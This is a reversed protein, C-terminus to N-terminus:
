YYTITLKPQNGTGDKGYLYGYDIWNTPPGPGPGFCIGKSVGTRFEDAITSGLSLTYTGGIYCQTLSARQTTANSFTSPVSTNTHTGVFVKMWDYYAHKIKFTLVADVITKGALDASMAAWDFIAISKQNGYNSDYQGQYLNDGINPPRETGGGVYTRCATATYTTSEEIIPSSDSFTGQLVVGEYKLSMWMAGLTAVDPSIPSGGTAHLTGLFIELYDGADLYVLSGGTNATRPNNANGAWDGTITVCTGTGSVGESNKRVMLETIHNGAVAPTLWDVNFEIRYLGSYPAQLRTPNAISWLSGSEINIEFNVEDWIVATWYGAISLAGTRLLRIAPSPIQFFSNLDARSPVAVGHMYLNNFYGDTAGVNGLVNLSQFQTSGDANISWGTLGEEYNLSSASGKMDISGDFSSLDFTKLEDPDYARIGNMDIEIRAGNDGTKISGSLLWDATIEGATIKSVSLDSIHADDILEATTQASLSPSSKNGSTDVAVVKVYVAATNPVNFTAVAPAHASMMGRNARLNGLLTTSSPSFLPEYEAHVELHALDNELNFTGGSAKGMNHTVQIALLSGALTPANPVSPPISDVATTQVTNASWNSTNNGSDIARIRFDYNTGAALEALIFSNDGWQVYDSHWVGADPAVPQDWTQMQSWTLTSAAGWTQSYLSGTNLRHQIEYRDGDLITTGDVNLPTAWVLKQQAKVDGVGDLYVTTQFSATVWTPAAPVTNDAQTLSGVRQAVTQGSNTLQRQFDGIVVKSSVPDDFHVYDTLDYWTGNSSRYGISYQDTVPWDTETVQLKIPNVRAGRITVENRVDSLGADPDYLYVYDGVKFSGYIDYDETSLNLNRQQAIVQRLALEARVDANQELTDSESVMRTLKLPNGHLDKYINTGPSVTDIDASGTSVSEGNAEALMLTRTSFDEMDQDLDLNTPLARLTLDEGFSTGKRIIVCVPNTVYLSTEPGADLTADNNVRFSVPSNEPSSNFTEWRTSTATCMMGTKTASNLYSDTTQSLLVGNVYVYINDGSAIIQLTTGSTLTSALTLVTTAVGATVKELVIAGGASAAGLRWYNATDVGRFVLYASGTTLTQTTVQTTTSAAVSITAMSSGSASIYGANSIIGWTGSNQTWLQGSDLQGLNTTTDGRNFTDYVALGASSMTDCVYQISTRPSEYVHRGSYSGPVSYLTGINLSDPCLQTIVTSFSSNTFTLPVELVEGKSDEDGLWFNMGVGGIRTDDMILNTRGDDALKKRRIVGVYRAASLTNDGYEVPNMRGPIIAIHGFYDILDVVDRPIAELLEIEFSGLAELVETVPM